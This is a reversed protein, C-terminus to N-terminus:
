IHSEQSVNCPSILHLGKPAWCNLVKRFLLGLILLMILVDRANVNIKFVFYKGNLSLSLCIWNVLTSCFRFSLAFLLLTVVQLPTTQNDPHTYDQSPSNYTTTVSTELPLWWWLRTFPPVVRTVIYFWHARTQFSSWFLTCVGGVWTIKDWGRGGGGDQYEM